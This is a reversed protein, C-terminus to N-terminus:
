KSACMCHIAYLHYHNGSDDQPQAPALRNRVPRARVGGVHRAARQAVQDRQADVEEANVQRQQGAISVTVCMVYCLIPWCIAIM